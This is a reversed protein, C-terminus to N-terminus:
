KGSERERAPVLISGSLHTSHIVAHDLLHPADGARHHLLLDASEVTEKGIIPIQGRSTLRQLWKSRKSWPILDLLVRAPFLHNGVADQAVAIMQQLKPSQRGLPLCAQMMAEGDADSAM